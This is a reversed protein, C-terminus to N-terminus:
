DGAKREKGWTSAVLKPSDVDSFHSSSRQTKRERRKYKICAIMRPVCYLTVKYLISRGSICHFYTGYLSNRSM